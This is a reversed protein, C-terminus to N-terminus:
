TRTQSPVPISVKVYKTTEPVTNTDDKACGALALASVALIISLKKM